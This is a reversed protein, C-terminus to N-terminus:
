AAAWFAVSTASSSWTLGADHSLRVAVVGAGLEGHLMCTVNTSAACPSQATSANGAPPDHLLRAQSVLAPQEVFSSVPDTGSPTSTAYADAVHAAESHRSPFLGCLM